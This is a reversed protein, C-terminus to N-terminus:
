VHARGIERVRAQRFAEVVWPAFLGALFPLVNKTLVSLILGLVSAAIKWAAPVAVEDRRAQYARRESEIARLRPAITGLLFADFEEPTKM